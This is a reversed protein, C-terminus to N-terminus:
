GSEGRGERYGAKFGSRYARNLLEVYHRANLSDQCEIVTSGNSDVVRGADDADIAYPILEDVTM